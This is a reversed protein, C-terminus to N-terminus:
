TIYFCTYNIMGLPCCNKVYMYRKLWMSCERLTKSTTVFRKFMLRITLYDQVCLGIETHHKMIEM